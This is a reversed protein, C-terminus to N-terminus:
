AAVYILPHSHSDMVIIWQRKRRVYEGRTKRKFLHKVGNRLFIIINRGLMKSINNELGITKVSCRNLTKKKKKTKKGKRSGTM